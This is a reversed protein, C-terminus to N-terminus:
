ARTRRQFLWHASRRAVAAREAADVRRTHGVMAGRGIFDLRDLLLRAASRWTSMGLRRWLVELHSSCEAWHRFVLGSNRTGSPGSMSGM